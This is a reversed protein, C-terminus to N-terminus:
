VQRRTMELRLQMVSMRHVVTQHFSGLTIGIKPKVVPNEARFLLTAQVKAKYFAGSTYPYAGEQGLIRSIRAWRMRYKKLNAVVSLYEDYSATPGRVLSKFSLVM